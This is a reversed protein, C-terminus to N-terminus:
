TSLLRMFVGLRVGAAANGRSAAPGTRASLAKRWHFPSKTRRYRYGRTTSRKRTSAVGSLRQDGAAECARRLEPLMLHALSPQRTLDPAAIHGVCKVREIYDHPDPACIATLACHRNRLKVVQGSVCRLLLSAHGGHSQGFSTDLASICRYLSSGRRHPPSPSRCIRLCAFEGM